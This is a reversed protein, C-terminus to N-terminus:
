QPSSFAQPLLFFLPRRLDGPLMMSYAVIEQRNNVTLENAFNLNWLITVGVDTRDRQAIELARITYNAQDQPTIYNM